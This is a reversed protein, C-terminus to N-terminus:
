QSESGQASEQWRMNLKYEPEGVMRFGLREYLSRARNNKLVDLTLAKGAQTARDKLEKMIATGIGRNQLAPTLYLQGLYISDPSESVHLWGADSGDILSSGSLFRLSRADEPPGTRIHSSKHPPARM